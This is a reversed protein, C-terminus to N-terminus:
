LHSVSEERELKDGGEMQDQMREEIAALSQSTQPASPDQVSMSETEHEDDKSEVIDGERMPGTFVGTSTGNSFAGTSIGTTRRKRRAALYRPRLYALVNWFGQMPVLIAICLMMEYYTVGTIFQTVRTIILPINTLYLAGVYLYSQQALRRSMKLSKQSATDRHYSYRQTRGEQTRVARYTLWMNVTVLFLSAWKPVLDFLQDLAVSPSLTLLDHYSM